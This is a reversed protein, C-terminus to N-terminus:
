SHGGPPAFSSTARSHADTTDSPPADASVDASRPLVSPPLDTPPLTGGARSGPTPPAFAAPSQVATNLALTIDDTLGLAVAWTAVAWVAAQPTWGRQTVLVEALQDRKSLSWGGRTLRVPLREEAAVVLQHIRARQARADSGLEEELRKRLHSPQNLGVPGARAIAARLAATLDVAAM